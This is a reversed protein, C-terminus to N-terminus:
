GPRDYTIRVVRIGATAAAAAANPVAEICYASGSAIVETLGPITLIQDSAAIATTQTAGLQTIVGAADAKWAKISFAVTVDGRVFVDVAHIRDGVTLPIAARALVGAVATPHSLLSAGATASLNWNTTGTVAGVNRFEAPHLELQRDAHAFTEVITKLEKFFAREQDAHTVTRQGMVTVPAANQMPQGLAAAM